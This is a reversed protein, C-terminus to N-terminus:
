SIEALTRKLGSRRCRAPTNSSKKFWEGAPLRRELTKPLPLDGNQLPARHAGNAPSIKEFDRRDCVAAVVWFPKPKPLPFLGTQNSFMHNQTKTGHLITLVIWRIGHGYSMKKDHWNQGHESKGGL